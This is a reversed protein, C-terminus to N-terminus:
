TGGGERGVLRAGVRACAESIDVSEPPNRLCWEKNEVKRFTGRDAMGERLGEGKVTAGTQNNDLNVRAIAWKGGKQEGVVEEGRSGTKKDEVCLV